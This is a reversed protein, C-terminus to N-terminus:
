FFIIFPPFLPPSHSLRVSCRVVLYSCFFFEVLSPAVTTLCPRPAHLAGYQSIQEPFPKLLHSFAALVNVVTSGQPALSKGLQVRFYRVTEKPGAEAKGVVLEKGAEDTAKLFALNAAHENIFALYFETVSKDGENAVTIKVNHRAIQTSLDINRQVDKLVIGELIELSFATSLLLSVGLFLLCARLTKMQHHPTIYLPGRRGCRLCVCLGSDGGGRMLHQRPPTFFTVDSTGKVKQHCCFGLFLRSRIIGGVQVSVFLSAM